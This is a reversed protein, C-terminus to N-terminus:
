RLIAIIRKVNEDLESPDNNKLVLTPNKPLEPTQHVGMVDGATAYIERRKHRQTEDADVLIEYYENNHQRNYEHIEHFLSITSVIVTMGQATLMSALKAYIYATAKRDEITHGYEKNYPNKLLERLADGDLHIANEQEKLKEHLQSAITTKGSGALGTIWILRGM